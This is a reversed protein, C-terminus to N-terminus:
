RMFFLNVIGIFLPITPLTALVFFPSIILSVELSLSYIISSTDRSESIVTGMKNSPWTTPMISESCGTEIAADKISFFEKIFEGDLNFQLVSKSNEKSLQTMKDQDVVANRRDRIKQITEENHKKGFMHNDEGFMVPPRDARPNLNYCCEKGYWMDLLAQELIPEDSADEVVEWEFAEPNKRLANQFPYNYRSSLHVKKRKEFNTTSGVYFKGNSTNTAKYTIM